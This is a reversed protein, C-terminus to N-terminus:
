IYKEEIIKKWNDIKKLPFTLQNQTKYRFLPLFFICIHCNDTHLCYFEWWALFAPGGFHDQLDKMTFGLGMYVQLFLVFYLFLGDWSCNEVVKPFTECAVRFKEIGKYFPITACCFTWNEPFFLKLSNFKIWLFLLRQQILSEVPILFPM